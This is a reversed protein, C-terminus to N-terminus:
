RNAFCSAPGDLSPGAHTRNILDDTFRLSLLNARISAGLTVEAAM